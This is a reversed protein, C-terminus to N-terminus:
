RIWVPDWDEFDNNSLNRQDAGDGAMLWIQSRGTRNSFFAIQEGDPSWTPHKDWEWDNYTLQQLARTEIDIVWVEDNGTHNSAFAIRGGTPSWVPDYDAGSRQTLRVPQQEMEAGNTYAVFLNFGAYDPTHEVFVQTTQDHNWQQRAYLEGLMATVEATAPQQESGDPRMVYLRESGSRNSRFAIWGHYAAWGAPTPSPPPLPTATPPAAYVPAPAVVVPAVPTPLPTPTAAAAEARQQAESHDAIPLAAAKEYWALAGESDGTEAAHDGALLYSAYLRETLSGGLYTPREGYLAEWNAIAQVPNDLQLARDGALYAALLRDEQQAAAHDVPLALARRFYGQALAVRTEDSVPGAVIQQGARLYAVALQPVVAGAEEATVLQRFAEYAEIATVWQQARVAAEARELHQTAVPVARAKALLREVDRYHPAKQALASLLALAQDYNEGALAQVAVAYENALAAQTIAEELGKQAVRLNPNDTLVQRYADVAERYHGATFAVQAQELQVRQTYAWASTQRSHNMARVGAALMGAFLLVYILLRVARGSVRQGAQGKVRGQWTSEVEAKLLAEDFLTALEPATPYESRLAGLLPLASSWAGHQIAALAARYRRDEALPREEKVLWQPQWQPQITQKRRKTKVLLQYLM